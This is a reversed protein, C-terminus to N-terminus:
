EHLCLLLKYNIKNVTSIGNQWQACEMAVQTVQRNVIFLFSQFAFLSSAIATTNESGDSKGYRTRHECDCMINNAKITSSLHAQIHARIGVTRMWCNVSIYITLAYQPAKIEDTQKDYFSCSETTKLKASLICLISIKTTDALMCITLMVIPSHAWSFLGEKGLAFIIHRIYKINNCVHKALLNTRKDQNLAQVMDCGIQQLAFKCCEYKM